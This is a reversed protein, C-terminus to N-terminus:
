KKGENISDKTLNTKPRKDVSCESHEDFVPILGKKRPGSLLIKEMTRQLITIYFERKDVPVVLITLFGMRNGGLVDTFVQDGIVVTKDPVTDLIKLADVFAKKRPKIARFVFPINLLDSFFKVRGRLLCNSVICLKFGLSQAKKKKKKVDETIAKTKWSVLTNDLDLIISDFGLDKLRELNINEVKDISFDPLFMKLNFLM